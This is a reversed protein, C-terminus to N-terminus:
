SAPGTTERAERLRSIEADLWGPRDIVCAQGGAALQLGGDEADALRDIRLRALALSGSVSSLAGLETDGAVVTDGVGANGAVHLTLTRRRATAKRKMRSVVEQGIFCGKRFDVGGLLDMNIDAPFVEASGFDADQEAVGAAIRAAHYRRLDEPAPPALLSREVFDRRPAGASRPDALGTFAAVALDGRAEITAKSRLRLMGLRRVLEGTASAPADVLFGDGDPRLIMDSLIKGQPTLLAGFIHAGPVCSMTDSTLINQLFSRADAGHVVVVSRHPLLIPSSM